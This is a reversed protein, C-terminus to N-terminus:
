FVNRDIALFNSYFGGILLHKIHGVESQTM